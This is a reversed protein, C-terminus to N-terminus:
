ATEGTLRGRLKRKSGVWQGGIKEAPIVKSELLHFTKRVPRGIEEAIARAGWLLDSSLNKSNEIDSM